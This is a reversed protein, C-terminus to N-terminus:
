MVRRSTRTNGPVLNLGAYLNAQEQSFTRPRGRSRGGRPITFGALRGAMIAHTTPDGGHVMAFRAAQQQILNFQGPDFKARSIEAEGVFEGTFKMAQESTMGTYKMLELHEQLVQAGGAGARGTISQVEALKLQMDTLEKNMTVTYQRLDVLADRMGTILQRGVTFVAFGVAMRGIESTADGVSKKVGDFMSPIKKVSDGAGDALAATRQRMNNMTSTWQADLRRSDAVMKEIGAAMPADRVEFIVEYTDSSAVSM